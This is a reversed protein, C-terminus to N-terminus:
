RKRYAASKSSGKTLKDCVGAMVKPAAVNCYDIGNQATPAYEKYGAVMQNVENTQEITGELGTLTTGVSALIANIEDLTLKKAANAAAASNTNNEQTFSM